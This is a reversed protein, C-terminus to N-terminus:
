RINRIPTMAMDHMAKLLNSTMENMQKWKNMLMQVENMLMTTSKTEGNVAAELQDMKSASAQLFGNAAAGAVPVMSVLGGIAAVSQKRMERKTERKEQLAAEEMKMRLKKEFKDSMHAMFMFILDEINMGPNNLMGIMADDKVGEAVSNMAKRMQFALGDMGVVSGAMGVGAAVTYGAGFDPNEVMKASAYGLDGGPVAAGGASMAAAASALDGGPMGATVGSLGMRDLMSSMDAMHQPVQQGPFNAQFKAAVENPIMPNGDVMKIDYKSILKKSLASNPDKNLAMTLREYDYGGDKFSTDMKTYGEVKVGSQIRDNPPQTAPGQSGVFTGDPATTPKNDKVLKDYETQVSKLDTGSISGVAKTLSEAIPSDKGFVNELSARMQAYDKPGYSGVGEVGAM